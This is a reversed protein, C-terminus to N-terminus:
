FGTSLTCRDTCRVIDTSAFSIRHRTQFEFHVLSAAAPVPYHKDAAFEIASIEAAFFSNEVCKIGRFVGSPGTTCGLNESRACKRKARRLRASPCNGSPSCSRKEARSLAIPHVIKQRLAVQLVTVSALRYDKRNGHLLSGQLQRVRANLEVKPRKEHTAGPRAAAILNSVRHVTHRSRRTQETLSRTRKASKKKPM